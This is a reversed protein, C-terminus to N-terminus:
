KEFEKYAWPKSGKRPFYSHGLLTFPEYTLWHKMIEDKHVDWKKRIMNMDIDDFYDHGSILYELESSKLREAKVSTRKAAAPRGM